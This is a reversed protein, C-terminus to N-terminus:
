VLNEYEKVKKKKGKRGISIVNINKRINKYSTNRVEDWTLNRIMMDRMVITLDKRLLMMKEVRGGNRIVKIRRKMVNGVIAITFHKIQLMTKQQVKSVSTRLFKRCVGLPRM